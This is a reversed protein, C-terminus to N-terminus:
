KLKSWLALMNEAFLQANLPHASLAKLQLLADHLGWLDKTLLRERLTRLQETMLATDSQNAYKVRLLSQLLNIQWNLLEDRDQKSWDTSVTAIATQGALLDMLQQAWLAHKARLEGDTLKAAGLPRGAALTLLEAASQEQGSEVSDEPGAPHRSGALNAELWALAESRAPLPMRIHQCRSRITPLLRGAQLSFLLIHTYAAPEELTKLLSNAANVNMADADNIVAVRVPSYSRSLELFRNLTRIQDVAIVKKDDPVSVQIFDPHAASRFVECSRCVGCALGADNPQLCLLSQALAAVFAEHGCDAEASFLLAHPLRDGQRADHLQTQLTQHWPYIM